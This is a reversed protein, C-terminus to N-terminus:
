RTKKEILYVLIYLHTKHIHFSKVANYNPMLEDRFLKYLYNIIIHIFM